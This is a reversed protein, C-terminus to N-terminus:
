EKVAIEVTHFAEADFRSVALVGDVIEERFDINQQERGLPFFTEAQRDPFCHQTINPYDGRISATHGFVNDVAFVARDNRKVAAHFFQAAGNGFNAFAILRHVIACDNFQRFAM